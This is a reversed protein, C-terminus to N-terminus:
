VFCETQESNRIQPLLSIELRRATDFLHKAFQNRGPSDRFDRLICAFRYLFQKVSDIKVRRIIDLPDLKVLERVDNRHRRKIVYVGCINYSTKFPQIELVSIM